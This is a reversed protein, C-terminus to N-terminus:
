FLVEKMNVQKLDDINTLVGDVLLNVNNKPVAASAPQVNSNNMSFSVYRNDNNNATANNDKAAYPFKLEPFNSQLYHAATEYSTKTQDNRNVPTFVYNMGTSQRSYDHDETIIGNLEKQLIVDPIRVWEFDPDA